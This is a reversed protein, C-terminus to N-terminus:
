KRKAPDDFAEGSVPCALHSFAQYGPAITGEPLERHMLRVHHLGCVPPDSDEKIFCREAM